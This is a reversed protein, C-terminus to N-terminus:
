IFSNLHLLWRFHMARLCLFVKSILEKRWGFGIKNDHIARVINCITIIVNFLEEPKHLRSCIAMANVGGTSDEGRAPLPAVYITPM